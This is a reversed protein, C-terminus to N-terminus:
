RYAGLDVTFDEFGPVEGRVTLIRGGPRDNAELICIQDPSFLDQTESLRHAVYAGGIGAGVIVVQCSSPTAHSYATFVLSSLIALISLLNFVM